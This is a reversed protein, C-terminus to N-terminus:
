VFSVMFPPGRSPPLLHLTVGLDNQRYPTLFKFGIAFAKLVFHRSLDEKFYFVAKSAFFAISAAPIQFFLGLLLIYAFNSYSGGFLVRESLELSLFGTAQAALVSVFSANKRSAFITFISLAVLGVIIPVIHSHWSHGTIQILGEFNTGTIFSFARYTLEHSLLVGLAALVLVLPKSKMFSM